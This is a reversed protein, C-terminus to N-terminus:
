GAVVSPSASARAARSTVVIGIAILAAGILSWTAIDEGFLAVGWVFGLAIQVTSASTAVGARTIHLAQTMYVQALQTTVGIGLLYLWEELTPAVWTLAVIPLIFPLGVAPFAWVIIMPHDTERLRRVTTYAVASMFAGFLAIAVVVPDAAHAGFLFEPRAVLVVGCVSLLIGGWERPGLTEGIFVTALAATMVPNSFQIATADALPLRNIATFFCVLGLIGALARALLRPRDVGLPDLGLRRIVIGSLVFTVVIRAAVLQQIPLREGGLKVLVAMTSFLLAAVLMLRVGQRPNDRPDASGTRRPM